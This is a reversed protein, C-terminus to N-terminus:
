RGDRESRWLFRAFSEWIGTQTGARRVEMDPGTIEATQDRLRGDVTALQARYQRMISADMRRDARAFWDDVGFRLAARTQAACVLIGRKNMEPTTSAWGRVCRDTIAGACQSFAAEDAGAPLETMCHLVSRKTHESACEGPDPGDACAIAQQVQAATFTPTPLTQAGQVLTAMVFAAIM